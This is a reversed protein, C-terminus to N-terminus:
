PMKLIVYKIEYFNSELKENWYMKSSNLLIKYDLLVLLSVLM